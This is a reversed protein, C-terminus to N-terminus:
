GTGRHRRGSLVYPHGLLERATARGAPNLVLSRALLDAGDGDPLFTRLEMKWPTGAFRLREADEVVLGTTDYVHGFQIGSLAECLTAGVGWVDVSPGYPLACAMEPARYDAAGTKSLMPTDRPECATGFDVLVCFATSGSVNLVVNSPTIDRHVIGMQNLYSVASCLDGAVDRGIADGIQAELESLPKGRVYEMIMFPTGDVWVMEEAKVVNEHEMRLLLEYERRLSHAAEATNLRHSKVAVLHGPTNRRALSICGNSGAGIAYL